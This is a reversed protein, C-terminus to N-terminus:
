LLTSIYGAGLLASLITFTLQPFAKHTAAYGKGMYAGLTATAVLALLTGAVRTRGTMLAAGLLLAAAIGGSALLSARSGKKKYAMVGGVAILVAFLVTALRWPGVGGDDSGNSDGSGGGGGNGGSGGGSGSGGVDGGGSLASDESGPGYAAPARYSAPTSYPRPSVYRPPAKYDWPRARDIRVGVAEPKDGEAAKWYRPSSYDRPSHYDPPSGYGQKWWRPTSTACCPAVGRGVRSSFLPQM